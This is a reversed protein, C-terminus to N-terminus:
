VAAFVLNSISRALVTREAAHVCMAMPGPSLREDVSSAGVTMHRTVEQCADQSIKVTFAAHFAAPSLSVFLSSFNWNLDLVDIPVPFVVQQVVKHEKTWVTM